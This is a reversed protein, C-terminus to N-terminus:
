YEDGESELENDLNLSYKVTLLFQSDQLLSTIRFVPIFYGLSQFVRSMGNGAGEDGVLDIYAKVIDQKTKFQDIGRLTIFTLLCGIIGYVFINFGNSVLFKISFLTNLPTFILVTLLLLIILVILSLIKFPVTFLAASNVYPIFDLFSPEIDSFYRVRKCYRVDCIYEIFFSVGLIWPIMEFSIFGEFSIIGIDLGFMSVFLILAGLFVGSFIYIYFKGEMVPKKVQKTQRM